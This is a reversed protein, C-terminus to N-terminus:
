SGCPSTCYELAPLVLSGNVVGPWFPPFSLATVPIRCSLFSSLDIQYSSHGKTSPCLWGVAAGYSAIGMPVLVESRLRKRGASRKGTCRTPWVWSRVLPESGASPTRVTPRGTNLAPLLSVPCVFLSALMKSSLHPKQVLLM